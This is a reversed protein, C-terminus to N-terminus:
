RYDQQFIELFSSFYHPIIISIALKSMIDSFAFRLFRPRVLVTLLLCPFLRHFLAKKSAKSGGKLGWFCGELIDLRDYKIGRETIYKYMGTSITKFFKLTSPAVSFCTSLLQCSRRSGNLSLDRNLEKM